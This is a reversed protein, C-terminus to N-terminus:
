EEDGDQESAIPTLTGFLGDAEDNIGASFFLTTAPGAGAGNGFTLAWLGDIKLISDDPNRMFGIFQRTFGNFAAIQGSGFNGVLITNSFEGFDRPAWVVGWPSNMWPGHQLRSILRGTTTFIDVFGLGPGAVDDHKQADQKAYTVFLSGGINQINFPAFGRPIFDDDFADEGLHVRHFMTDYVEVRGSRFNTVYLYKKGNIEGSTAGKYVAGKGSRNDSNDAELVANISPPNAGQAVNAQPNWGSITGDETVFIFVAPLNSPTGKDLIFDSPSGNFVIGTPTATTGAPASKPPPVIVFNDFTSGAPDPFNSTPAGTGLYLSSVGAGNNNIWWPSTSSRTLGWPNKMNPDVIVASGDSNAPQTINSVLNKQTFHQACSVAPYAVSAALVVALSKPSLKM